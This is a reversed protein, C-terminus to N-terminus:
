DNFDEEEEDEVQTSSKKITESVNVNQPIWDDPTPIIEPDVIDAPAQELHTWEGKAIENKVLSLVIPPSALGLVILIIVLYGIWSYLM